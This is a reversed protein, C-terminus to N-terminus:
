RVATVRAEIAASDSAFKEEQMGGQPVQVLAGNVTVSRVPIGRDTLAAHLERVLPGTADAHSAAVGLWVAVGGDAWAVHWRVSAPRSSFWERLVAQANAQPLVDGEGIQSPGPEDAGEVYGVGVQPEAAVGAAYATDRLAVQSELRTGQASLFTATSSVPMALEALAQTDDSAISAALDQRGSARELESAEAPTSRTPMLSEDGAQPPEHFWSQTQTREMAAQWVGRWAPNVDPTFGPRRADDENLSRLFGSAADIM